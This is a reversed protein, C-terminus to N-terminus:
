RSLWLTFHPKDDAENKANSSRRLRLEFAGDALCCATEALQMILRNSELSVQDVSHKSEDWTVRVAWQWNAKSYGVSGFDDPAVIGTTVAGCCPGEEDPPGWDVGGDSHCDSMANLIRMAAEHIAAAVVFPRVAVELEGADLAAIECDEWVIPPPACWGM